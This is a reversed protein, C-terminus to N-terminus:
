LRSLKLTQVCVGLVKLPPSSSFFFCASADECPIPDLTISASMPGMGCLNRAGVSVNVSSCNSLSFYALKPGEDGTINLTKVTSLNGGMNVLYDIAGAYPSNDPSRWFSSIQCINNNDSFPQL